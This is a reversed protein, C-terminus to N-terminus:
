GLVGTSISEALTYAASFLVLAAAAIAPSWPKFRFAMLVIPVSLMDNFRTAFVPFDALLYYLILGIACSFLYYYQARDVVDGLVLLTLITAMSLINPGNLFNFTDFDSSGIVQELLQPLFATVVEQTLAPITLATGLLLLGVGGAVAVIPGQRFMWFIAMVIAVLAVQTHFLMGLVLWVATPWYRGELYEHIAILMFAIAVAARIQTYEHVPYFIGCYALIALLPWRTHRYILRFKIALSTAALTAAYVAYSAGLSKFLYALGTFGLEYRDHGIDRSVGIHDFFVGYFGYDRGAGFWRFAAALSLIAWLLVALCVGLRGAPSREPIGEM